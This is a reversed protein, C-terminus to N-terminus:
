VWRVVAWTTAGGAAYLLPADWSHPSRAEALTMVPPLLLALAATQPRTFQGAAAYGLVIILTSAFVAASGEWSRTYVGGGNLAPVRYTHRGFRVGVPEALGDGIATVLLPLSILEPRGLSRLAFYNLSLVLFAAAYQSLIWFLTHPRDEPRDISAFATECVAARDRVPKLFLLTTALFVGATLALGGPTKEYPLLPALAMPIFFVAFHNLKRTYNVKVGSVRVWVGLWFAIGALLGHHIVLTWVHNAPPM